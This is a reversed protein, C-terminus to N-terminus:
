FKKTADEIEATRVAQDHRAEAISEAEGGAVIHGSRDDFRALLKALAPLPMTELVSLAAEIVDGPYCDHKIAMIKLRKAVDPRLAIHFRSKDTKPRVM